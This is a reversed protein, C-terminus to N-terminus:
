IGEADHDGEKILHVHHYSKYVEQCTDIYRIQCLGGRSSGCFHRFEAIRNKHKVKQGPILREFEKLTM